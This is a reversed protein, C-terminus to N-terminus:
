QVDLHTLSETSIGIYPTTYLLLRVQHIFHPHPLNEKIYFTSVNNEFIPSNDNVDLVDIKVFVTLSSKEATTEEQVQVQLIHLTQLDHNYLFSHLFPFCLLLQIKLSM